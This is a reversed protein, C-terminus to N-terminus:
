LCFVAYSIRMLSQLASTTSKRDELLLEATKAQASGGGHERPQREVVLHDVCQCQQELGFAQVAVTERLATAQLQGLEALARMRGIDVQAVRAAQALRAPLLHKAEVPEFLM